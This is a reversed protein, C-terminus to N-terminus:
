RRKEIKIKEGKKINLRKVSGSRLELAYLADCEPKYVDCDNTCPAARPMMDVVKQKEDLWVIDIPFLMNKMWIGHRGKRWFVMLMCEGAQLGEKYMLGITRKIYTDAVIARLVANGIKVTTRDYNQLRKLLRLM